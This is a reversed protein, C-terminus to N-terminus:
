FGVRSRERMICFRVRRPISLFGEWGWLGPLSGSSKTSYFCFGAIEPFPYLVKQGDLQLYPDMAEPPPYFCFTHGQSFSLFSEHTWSLSSNCLIPRGGIPSPCSVSEEVPVCFILLSQSSSPSHPTFCSIDRGWSEPHLLRGLVSVPALSCPFVKIGGGTQCQTVLLLLERRAFPLLM